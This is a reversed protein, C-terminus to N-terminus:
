AGSPGFRYTTEVRVPTDGTVLAALDISRVVAVCWGRAHAAGDAVAGLM